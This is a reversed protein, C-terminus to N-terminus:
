KISNRKKKTRVWVSVKWVKDKVKDKLNPAGLYGLLIGVERGMKKRARKFLGWNERLILIGKNRKVNRELAHKNEKARSAARIRIKLTLSKPDSDKRWQGDRTSNSRCFSIYIHQLLMYCRWTTLSIKNKCKINLIRTLIWFLWCIVRKSQIWNCPHNYLWNEKRWCKGLLIVPQQFM